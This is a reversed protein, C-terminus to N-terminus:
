HEMFRKAEALGLLEGLAIEGFTYLEISYIAHDQELIGSAKMTIQGIPKGYSVAGKGVM